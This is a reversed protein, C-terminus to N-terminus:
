SLGPTVKVVVIKLDVYVDAPRKKSVEVMNIDLPHLMNLIAM